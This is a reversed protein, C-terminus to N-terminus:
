CPINVLGFMEGPFAIIGGPEANLNLNEISDIWLDTFPADM